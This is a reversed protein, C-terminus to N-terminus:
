LFLPLLLNSRFIVSGSTTVMFGTGHLRARNRRMMCVIKAKLLHEYRLRITETVYSIGAHIIVKMHYEIIYNFMILIYKTTILSLVLEDKAVVSDVSLKYEIVDINM